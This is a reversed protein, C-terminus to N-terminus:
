TDAAISRPYELYRQEETYCLTKACEDVAKELGEIKDRPNEAGKHMHDDLGCTELYM